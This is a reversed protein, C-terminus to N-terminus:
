LGQQRNADDGERNVGVAQGEGWQFGGPREDQPLPAYAPDDATVDFIWKRYFCLLVKNIVKFVYFM